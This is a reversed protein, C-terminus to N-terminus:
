EGQTQYLDAQAQYRASIIALARYADPNNGSAYLDARGQYRSSLIALARQADTDNGLAYLDTMWQYRASLIELARQAQADRGAAYLDAKGQYRASIAELARHNRVIEEGKPQSALVATSILSLLLFAAVILLWIQPKRKLLDSVARNAKTTQTQTTM